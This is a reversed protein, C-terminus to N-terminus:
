ICNKLQNYDYRMGNLVSQAKQYNFWENHFKWREKGDAISKSSILMLEQIQNNLFKMEKKIKASKM